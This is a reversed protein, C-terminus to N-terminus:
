ASSQWVPGAADAGDTASSTPPAPHSPAPRGTPREPAGEAGALGMAACIRSVIAHLPEREFDESEIEVALRDEFKGMLLHGEIENEAQDWILSELANKIDVKRKERRAESDRAAAEGDKRDERDERKRDRVLRAKLALTQRYSRAARQYSRALGNAVEPDEAAEARDAFGLALRLDRAALADLGRFQEETIEPTFTM